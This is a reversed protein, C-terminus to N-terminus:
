VAGLLMALAPYSGSTTERVMVLTLSYWMRVSPPAARLRMLRAAKWFSCIGMDLSEGECGNEPKPGLEMM